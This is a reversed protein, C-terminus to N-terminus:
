RRPGGDAREEHSAGAYLLDGRDRCLLWQGSPPKPSGWGRRGRYDRGGDDGRGRRRAARHRASRRCSSRAHGIGRGVVHQAVQLDRADEVRGVAGRGLELDRGRQVVRRTDHRDPREDGEHVQRARADRQGGGRRVPGRRDVQREHRTRSRRATEHVGLGADHADPRPDDDDVDVEAVRAGGGRRERPDRPLRRDDLLQERRDPHLRLELPGARRDRHREDLPHADVRGAPRGLEVAAVVDPVAEAADVATHQAEEDGRGCLRRGAPRRGVHRQAVDALRLDTGGARRRADHAGRRIVAGDVHGHTVGARGAGHERAREDGHGSRTRVRARYQRTFYPMDTVNTGGGKTCLLPKGPDGFMPVFKGDHVQLVAGCSIPPNKDTHQRTWDIPGILGGADYATMHNLADIVKQQTFDPGAARLGTVLEDANVWGILSNENKQFGAKDMWTIFSKLAPFLPRTELPAEQVLVIDGEFFSGNKAMFDPNYANPLFMQAHLGQQRMERAITLNGNTDLCTTVFDVKKDAMRKVDASVDTVGFSLSKDAFVVQAPNEFKQFSAVIMDLCNASQAVNYALVAIRTKHFRHALAAFTPGVCDKSLCLAGIQAFFNPPGAWEDQANWGFTPIGAKALLDAGTFLTTSVPLVAFPRDQSLIAQVESKNNVLQDDHRAGLVLKRGYIGGKSNVM